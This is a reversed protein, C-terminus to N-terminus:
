RYENDSSELDSCRQSVNIWYLGFRNYIYGFAIAIAFYLPYSFSSFTPLPILLFLVLIQIGLVGRQMNTPCEGSFVFTKEKIFGCAIIDRANEITLNAFHDLNDGSEDSYVGKFLFKEDDTMQIVLPCQFAQQLWKTFLFPVWHGLHMAGSSPGRGTYLYFPKGSELCDCIKSLDRHSFFINRRLFRHLYPVTGRGVTLRELRALLEPDILKSGFDDVLRNYDIKGSVEFANVVMDGGGGGAPDDNDNDVITAAAMKKEVEEQSVRAEQQQKEFLAKGEDTRISKSFLPAIDEVGPVSSTSDVALAVDGKNGDESSGFKFKVTIDANRAKKGSRISSSGNEERELVIKGPISGTTAFVPGPPVAVIHGSLYVLTMTNDIPEAPTDDEKKDDGDKKAKKKKKKKGFLKSKQGADLICDGYKALAEDKDMTFTAIPLNAAVMANAAAELVYLIEGEAEKSDDPLDIVCDTGTKKGLPISFKGSSHGDKIYTPQMLSPTTDGVPEDGGANSAKATSTNAGIPCGLTGAVAARLIIFATSVEAPPTRDYYYPASM